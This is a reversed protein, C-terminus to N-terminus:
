WHLYDTRRYHSNQSAYLVMSVERLHKLQVDRRSVTLVVVLFFWFLYWSPLVEDFLMCNKKSVLIKGLASEHMMGM